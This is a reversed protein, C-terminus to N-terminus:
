EPKPDTGYDIQVAINEVKIEQKTPADFGGRSVIDKAAALSVNDNDSHMLEGIRQLALAAMSNIKARMLKEYESRFEENHFWESITGPTVNLEAAVDKKLKAEYVLMNLGLIQKDSLAM